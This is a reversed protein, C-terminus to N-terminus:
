DASALKAIQNETMRCTRWEPLVTAGVRLYFDIAPQNWDLVSWELRRCNREQAIRAVKSLLAKGVGKGRHESLVFLDELYLGPRAFFSSYSHFFLAYGAATQDLHAILVEAYPRQGFLTERLGEVTAPAPLKEYEALGRVLTLLDPLDRENAPRINLSAPM